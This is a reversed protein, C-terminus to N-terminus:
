TPMEEEDVHEECRWRVINGARVNSVHEDDPPLTARNTQNQGYRIVLCIFPIELGICFMLLDFDPSVRMIGAMTRTTKSGVAQPKLLSIPTDQMPIVNKKAMAHAPESKILAAM